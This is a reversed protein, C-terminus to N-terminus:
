RVFRGGELWVEGDVSVTADLLLDRWRFYRGRVEGGLERNNGIGLRLVGAGYGYYAM